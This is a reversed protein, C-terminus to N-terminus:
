LCFIMRAIMMTTATAPTPQNKMNKGRGYKQRLHFIRYWSNLIVDVFLSSSSACLLCFLFSLFLVCVSLFFDSAVQPFLEVFHYHCGVSYWRICYFSFLSHVFYCLLQRSFLYFVIGNFLHPKFMNKEMTTTIRNNIVNTKNETINVNLHKSNTESSSEKKQKTPTQMSQVVDFDMSSMFNSIFGFSFPSSGM